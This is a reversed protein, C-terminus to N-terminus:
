EARAVAAVVQRRGNFASLMMVMHQEEREREVVRLVAAFADAVATADLSSTEFYPVGLQTALAQAEARSVARRHDAVDIKNGILAFLPGSRDKALSSVNLASCLQPVWHEPIAAFSAANTVDFVILVGDSGRFFSAIMSRFKEQGASDWLQLTAARSELQVEKTLFDLGVTPATDAPPQGRVFMHLLSSKGVGSEGVLVIKLLLKKSSM